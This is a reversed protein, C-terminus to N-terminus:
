LLHLSRDTRTQRPNRKLVLLSACLRMSSSLDHRLKALVDPQIDVLLPDVDRNGVFTAFRRAVPALDLVAGFCQLSQQPPEAGFAPRQPKAVFRAGAAILKVPLQDRGVLVAGHHRRRQNRALWALPDLGVPSVAQAQRAEIAGALEGRNPNGVGGLFGHAIEAAGALVHLNEVLLQPLPQASKQQPMSANVRSATAPRLRVPAPELRLTELRPRLLDHEFLVDRRHARRLSARGPQLLLEV